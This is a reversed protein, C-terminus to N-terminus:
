FTSLIFEDLKDKNISKDIKMNLIDAINFMTLHTSTTLDNNKIVYYDNDESYITYVANNNKIETKNNIKKHFNKISDLNNKFYDEIFVHM